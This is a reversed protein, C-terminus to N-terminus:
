RDVLLAMTVAAVAKTSSFAATLTDRDWAVKADPDAYGGFFEVVLEGKHYLSFAGGPEKGSELLDRYLFRM